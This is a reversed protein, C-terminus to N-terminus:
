DKKDEVGLLWKKAESVDSFVDCGGCTGRNHAVTIAFEGYKRVEPHKEVIAVRHEVIGVKKFLEHYDYAELTQLPPLTEDILLVNNSQHKKCAELIKKWAQEDDLPFSYKGWAKVQIYKGKYEIDLRDRM